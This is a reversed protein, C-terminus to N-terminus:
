DEKRAPTRAGVTNAITYQLPSEDDNQRITRSCQQSIVAANDEQRIEDAPM